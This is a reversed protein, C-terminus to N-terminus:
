KGPRSTQMEAVMFRFVGTLPKGDEGLCVKGDNGIPHGEADTFMTLDATVMGDIPAHIQVDTATTIDAGTQTDTVVVLAGLLPMAHRGAGPRLRWRLAIVGEYSDSM